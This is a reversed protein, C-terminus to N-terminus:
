GILARIEYIMFMRNITERLAVASSFAHKTQDNEQTKTLSSRERKTNENQPPLEMRDNNVGGFEPRWTQTQSEKGRVVVVANM